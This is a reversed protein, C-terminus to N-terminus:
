EKMYIKKGCAPCQGEETKNELLSFGMRRILTEGCEPCYTIDNRMVNGLYVHHLGMDTAIKEAMELTKMPTPDHDKMKYHPFFRTFHLPIEPSIEYLKECVHTIKEETDNWGPIILNTAEVHRDHEYVIRVSQFVDYFPAHCLEEYFAEDGKVDINFGDMYEVLKKLPKENIYGNTVMVTYLDHEKALKATEYMFEYWIAPENYTFAIGDTEKAMEVIDKPSFERTFSDEQSITYNQCFECAFNCGITAISFVTSGPHFHYLPKKEIPDRGFSSVKGYIESYLTNGENKRGRCFGYESEPIYCKRPCLLCRVGEDETTYFQAEQLM